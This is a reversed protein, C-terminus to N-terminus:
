GLIPTVAATVEAVTLSPGFAAPVPNEGRLFRIAAYHRSEVQEISAAAPLLAAKNSILPAAGTYAGVGTGELTEATKLIAAQSSMDGFNYKARKAVPTGGLSSIVKTLTAVHAVEHDRISTLVSLAQGSLHGGAVAMIYFNAELHELTLAFNLIDLDTLGALTTAAFARGETLPNLASISLAALAAGVGRLANRRSVPSHTVQLIRQETEEM